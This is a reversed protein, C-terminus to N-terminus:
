TIYESRMSVNVCAYVFRMECMEVRCQIFATLRLFEVLINPTPIDRTDSVHIIHERSYKSISQLPQRRPKRAIM